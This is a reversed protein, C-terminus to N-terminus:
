RLFSQLKQVKVALDDEANLEVVRCGLCELMEVLVDLVREGQTFLKERERIGLLEFRSDGNDRGAVRQSALEPSSRVFVYLTKKGLIKTFCNLYKRLLGENFWNSLVSISWVQQVIAQDLVLYKQTDDLCYMRQFILMRLPRLLRVFSSWDKREFSTYFLVSWFLGRLLEWLHVLMWLLRKLRSRRSNWQNFQLRDLFPSESQNAALALGQVLTTKGAGPLGILEVILPYAKQNLKSM